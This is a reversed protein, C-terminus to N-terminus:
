PRACAAWGYGWRWPLGSCPKGGVRVALYMINGAFRFIDAVEAASLGTEAMISDTAQPVQAIVCARLQQDAELRRVYGDQTEGLWYQRDHDHCCSEWPPRKGFQQGFRPYISSITEWGRSMGGSCGDTTFPSPPLLLGFQVQALRQMRWQEDVVWYSALDQASLMPSFLILLLFVAKNM